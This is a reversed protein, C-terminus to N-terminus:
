YLVTSYLHDIQSFFTTLYMYVYVQLYIIKHIWCLEMWFEGPRQLFTALQNWFTFSPAFSLFLCSVWFSSGCSLVQRGSILIIGPSLYYSVTTDTPFCISPDTCCFISSLILCVCAYLDSQSKRSSVNCIGLPFM